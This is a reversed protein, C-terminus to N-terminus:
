EHIKAPLRLYQRRGVEFKNLIDYYEDNYVIRMKQNLGDRYHIVFVVTTVSVEQDAIVGEDSKTGPYEVGAWCEAFTAWTLLEQGSSGRTATPTEIRIRRDLQGIYTPKAM